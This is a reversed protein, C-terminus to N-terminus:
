YKHKQIQVSSSILQGNGSTSQVQFQNKIQELTLTYPQYKWNIHKLFSDFIYNTSFFSSDIVNIQEANIYLLSNESQSVYNQNFQCNILQIKSNQAIIYFILASDSESEKYYSYYINNNFKSNLIQIDQQQESQILIGSIQNITQSKQIICNDVNMFDIIVSESRRIIQTAISIIYIMPFDLLILNSIYFNQIRINQVKQIILTSTYKSYKNLQSCQEDTIISKFFYKQNLTITFNSLVLNMASSLLLETIGSSRIIRVDSIEIFNSQIIIISSISQLSSVLQINDFITITDLIINSMKITSTFDNSVLNLLITKYDHFVQNVEINQLIISQFQYDQVFNIISSNELSCLKIQYDKNIQNNTTQFLIFNQFTSNKLSIGSINLSKYCFTQFLPQIDSLFSLVISIQSISGQMVLYQNNKIKMFQSSYLNSNTILINNIYCNTTQQFYNDLLIINSNHMNSNKITFQDININIYQQQVTYEFYFLSTVSQLNLNQISLNQIQLQQLNTSIINFIIPNQDELQQQIVVEYFLVKLASLSQLHIKMTSQPQIILNRMSISEFDLIELNSNLFLTYGNGILTIKASTVFYINQILTTFIYSHLEITCHQIFSFQLEVEQIQQINLYTYLNLNEIRGFNSQSKNNTLLEDIKVNQQLFLQKDLALELHQNFLESNCYLNFKLTISNPDAGTESLKFFQQFKTDYYYDQFSLETQLLLCSHTSSQVNSNTFYPNASQLQLNSKPKCIQCYRPCDICEGDYLSLRRGEYMKCKVCKNQGNSKICLECNDACKKICKDQYFEFDVTCVKCVVELKDQPENGFIDGYISSRKMIYHVMAYWIKWGNKWQKSRQECKYCHLESPCAICEGTVLETYYGPLCFLCINKFCYACNFLINECDNSMSVIQNLDKSYVLCQYQLKNLQFQQYLEMQYMQTCYQKNEINDPITDIRICSGSLLSAYGEACLACYNILQDSNYDGKEYMHYITNVRNRMFWSKHFQIAYICNLDLNQICDVANISLYYKSNDICNICRNYYSGDKPNQVYICELCYKSCPYCLGQFVSYQGICQKCKVGSNYECELCEKPCELCENNLPNLVQQDYCSTCIFFDVCTKCKFNCVDCEGNKYYFQSQCQIYVQLFTHFHCNLDINYNCFSKCGVCLTLSSTSTDLVYLEIDKDERQILEYQGYSNFVYDSECKLLKAFSEPQTLCEICRVKEQNIENFQPCRIYIIQNDVEKIPFYGFQSLTQNKANYDQISTPYFDLFQICNGLNNEIYGLSCKCYSNELYRNSNQDCSICQNIYPGNCDLCSFHCEKNILFFKSKMLDFSEPLCVTIKSSERTIQLGNVSMELLVGSRIRIVLESFHYTRNHYQAEYVDGDNFWMKMKSVPVQANDFGYLISVYHWQRLDQKLTHFAFESKGFFQGDLKFLDPIIQNLTQFYVGNRLGQQWAQILCYQLDVLKQYDQFHSLSLIEAGFVSASLNVNYNYDIKVWSELQILGYHYTYNSIKHLQILQFKVIHNHQLNNNLLFKLNKFQEVKSITGPFQVFQKVEDRLSLQLKIEGGQTMITERMELNISSQYNIIQCYDNWIDYM